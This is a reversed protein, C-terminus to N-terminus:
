KSNRKENERKKDYLTGAVLKSGHFLAILTSQQYFWSVVAVESIGNVDRAHYTVYVHNPENDDVVESEISLYWDNKM